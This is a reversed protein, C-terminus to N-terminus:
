GTLTLVAYPLLTCSWVNETNELQEGMWARFRLPSRMAEVVSKEDLSRVRVDAPANYLTIDQPEATLNALIVRVRDEIRLALGIVRLPHSTGLPLVEAGAFEGVDALVHYLPYVAGPLSHFRDPVPSGRDSEMVGRWGNTEYCTVSQVGSEALYKVSGLTWGAGLLSLPGARLPMQEPLPEERGDYLANTPLM